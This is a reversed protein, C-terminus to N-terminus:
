AAESEPYFWSPDRDLLTAIRRVTDLRPPSDGDNWRYVTKDSVGLERALGALTFFSAQAAERLRNPAFAAM